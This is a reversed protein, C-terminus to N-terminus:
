RKILRLRFDDGILSQDIIQWDERFKLSPLRPVNAMGIGEGMFFPAYYLLLEDVCDERLMSGNLKFGSEVHIENMERERALYAFLKPLDVKGFNNAMAIVEIGRAEFAKAKQQSDLSDVNASVIIVGSQDVDNLIKATPPTELKSDVIIRWPQRQTEVDRVNLSPDDEKVTGVGTLIACAQARWHHGDARALPGTIWQSEGNPLATKGDLSAAIKLRVWPLGHTMRSIFGRNLARAEVEMLGCQVEIGAVKLKELGNGAVLPNPDSMAAIVKAPKAAILADVCPPTRGTHSCPELTVYITSGVLDKGNAKADALAQIEAHPGGVQQTFGRGIVQGDKVIVCGVRPNPNALYLAKQAEALAESMWQHDVATYMPRNFWEIAVGQMELPIASVGVGAM